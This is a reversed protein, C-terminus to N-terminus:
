FLVNKNKFIIDFRFWFTAFQVLTKLICFLCKNTEFFFNPFPGSCFSKSWFKRTSISFTKNRDLIKNRFWIYEIKKPVFAGFHFSESKFSRQNSM